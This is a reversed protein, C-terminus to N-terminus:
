ATEREQSIDVLRRGKDGDGVGVAWALLLVHLGKSVYLPVLPALSVM